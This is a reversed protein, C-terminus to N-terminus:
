YSNIKDKLKNIISDGCDKAGGEIWSRERTGRKLIGPYQGSPNSSCKIWNDNGKCCVCNLIDYDGRFDLNAFMGERDKYVIELDLCYFCKISKSEEEIKEAMIKDSKSDNNKLENLENYFKTKSNNRLVEKNAM